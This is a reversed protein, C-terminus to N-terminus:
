RPRLRVSTDRTARSFVQALESELRRRSGGWQRSVTGEYEVEFSEEFIPIGPEFLYLAVLQTRQRIRQQDWGPTVPIVEMPRFLQGRSIIILQQPDFRVDPQIAFLTVLMVTPERLRLRQAARGIETRRSIKLGSLSRYADPALLRIVREDLPLLRLEFSSTRIRVAVEDQKLTGFGAPPLGPGQAAVPMWGTAVFVLALGGYKM